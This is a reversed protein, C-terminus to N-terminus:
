SRTERAAPVPLTVLDPAVSEEAMEIAEEVARAFDSDVVWAGQDADWYATESGDTTRYMLSVRGLHVFFVDRGDQLKGPYADLTRGYEIEIQYAELLRRFKEAVQGEEEMLVRLTDIRQSREEMRFPLDNAVFEELSRFMKQVLPQMAAATGELSAIQAEFGTIKAAQSQLLEELQANYRGFSDVEAMLGAYESAADQAGATAAACALGAACATRAAFGAAIGYWRKRTM